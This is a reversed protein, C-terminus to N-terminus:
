SKKNKGHLQLLSDDLEEGCCNCYSPAHKIIEDPNKSMKLSSGKHGKQGGSKRNSKVRSNKINSRTYDHSSPTSSTNSKRGNKLLQIEIQLQKIMALADSLQQKM